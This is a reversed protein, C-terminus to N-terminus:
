LAKKSLLLVLLLRLLLASPNMAVAITKIVNNFVYHYKNNTKNLLIPWSEVFSSTSAPKLGLPQLQIKGRVGGLEDGMNEQTRWLPIPYILDWPLEYIETDVIVCSDVYSFRGSDVGLELAKLQVNTYRKKKMMKMTKTMLLTPM